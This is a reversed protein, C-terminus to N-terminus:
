IKIYVIYLYNKEIIERFNWDIWDFELFLIVLIYNKILIEFEWFINSFNLIQFMMYILVYIYICLFFSIWNILFCEFFMKFKFNVFFM